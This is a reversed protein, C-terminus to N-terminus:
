NSKKNVPEMHINIFTRDGYKQRLKDEIERTITHAQWLTLDGDMKAHFDLAIANGINRTHLNHVWEVGPVSMITNVIESEKEKPLSAELLEEICPKMIDYGAKIIFISVVIAALPDLIRWQKGLFMAGAVGILTGASSIADSRHHWANAIVAKSEVQNGVAVTKRYVAEKAIISIVAISLALWTPQPLVVGNISDIVLRVGNSILMAGAVILIIGIVMTAFTEYKGHGYEHGSDKPKNSIKVFVLVIVDTVFDSLSHIADATLASSRGLIGAIFKLMILVANVAAGILTVRYIKKERDETSASM